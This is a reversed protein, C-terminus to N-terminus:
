AWSLAIGAALGVVVVLAAVAATVRWSFARAVMVASPISLAPLTVLLVGATGYGAGAAVLGAVVPIEGGTPIVLLTGIVAAVILALPGVGQGLIAGGALAGSVAGVLLVVIVYEPVLIVTYRLLARGFRRAADRPSPVPDAATSCDSSVSSGAGGIRTALVAAGLVVVVGAVARVAVFPWPLTLALFVLVAPNLLPNGLWYAVAAGLAVGQRRMGVAVPATCCSCMMSPMSLLGGAAGQGVATRRSLVRALVARPVLAEMAAAIVVAVLAAKWVAGFYATAFSVAGAVSPVAGSTDFIAAGPWTHSGALSRAKQTYPVWKAWALCVAAILLVIAVGQAARRRTLPTATPRGPVGPEDTRGSLSLSSM